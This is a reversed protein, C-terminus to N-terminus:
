SEPKAFRPARLARVADVVVIAPQEVQVNGGARKVIDVVGGAINLAATMTAPDGIVTLKYPGALRQRDVEIGDGVDVFATSAVIRVPRGDRGAVQMAEAGAGRLEQVADLMVEAPRRGEGQEPDLAVSVEIGPGEAALTGALIGLATSRRRVDELANESGQAESNIARRRAELDGIESRLRQDRSELEDLIRVLDEQRATPLASNQETSRLQAAMAVGLLACLAAIAAGTRSPRRPWRRGDAPRGPTSGGAPGAVSEQDADPAHEDQDSAPEQGPAATDVVVADLQADRPDSAANEETPGTAKDGTM